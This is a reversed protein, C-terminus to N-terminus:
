SHGRGMRLRIERALVEAMRVNGEVRLHDTADFFLDPAEAFDDTPDVCEIGRGLLHGRIESYMSHLHYRGSQFAHGSPLLVVLFDAGGLRAHAAMGAVQELTFDRNARYLWEYWPISVPQGGKKFRYIMKGVFWPTKLRPRRYMRYLGNDAGEYITDRRAFDNPNLLYVVRNPRYVVSRSKFFELIEAAGYGPVGFNVVRIGDLREDLLSAITDEQSIGVGFTVSDGLLALTDGEPIENTVSRIGYRNIRLVRGDLELDVNRKLEYTLIPSPSATYYHM